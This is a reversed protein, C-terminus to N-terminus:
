YTVPLQLPNDGFVLCSDKKHDPCSQCCSNTLWAVAEQVDTFLRTDLGRNNMALQLIEESASKIDKLLYAAKKGRHGPQSTAMTAFEYQHSFSCSLDASQFDIINGKIPIEESAAEVAQLARLRLALDVKGSYKIWYFGYKCYEITFMYFASLACVHIGREQIKNTAPPPNSGGVKPNHASIM